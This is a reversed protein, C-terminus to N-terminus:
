TSLVQRYAQIGMATEQERSLSVRATRGAENTFKEASCRQFLMVVVALLIPVVRMFLRSRVPILATDILVRAPHCVAANEQHAPSLSLSKPSLAASSPIKPARSRL